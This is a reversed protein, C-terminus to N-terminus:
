VTAREGKGSRLEQKQGTASIEIRRPQAEPRKPLEITLVGNRCDASIRDPDVTQPLTVSREFRGYRREFGHTGGNGNGAKRELRKEGTVTLVGNEFTVSLNEPDVGPVEFTLKLGAASEEVDMAPVWNAGVLTGSVADDLLRDLERHLGNWGDLAPIGRTRLTPHM